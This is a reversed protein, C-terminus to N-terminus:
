KKEVFYMDVEGKNKAEIKGRHTCTFDHKVQKYTSGSINVKGVEGSSEMRSALNVADGWIDYAYKKTGVVGAVVKGTNIGIRIEFFPKGEKQRETKYKKMFDRIELAAKVVDFANNPNKTPLGGACMYADGITKIKEIKHKSIIKDFERFCYDIEGVLKAPTMTEAIKTFGKFDTFLITVKDYNQPKVSNKEKLEKATERPLINLLLAETKAKENRLAVTRKKVEKELRINKQIIRRNIFYFILIIIFIGVFIATYIFWQKRWFPTLITFSVIEDKSIEEFINKARAILEYNGPPVSSLEIFNNKNWKSWDEYNKLGTIKYQYQIDDSKLYFPAIFEFRLSNNLYAIQANSTTYISDNKDAISNLSLHIERSSIKNQEGEIKVMEDDKGVIWLNDSKDEYIKKIQPFLNLFEINVHNKVQNVSQWKNNEYTWANNKAMLYPINERTIHDINKYLISHSEKDYKFIGESQINYVSDNIMEFNVQEYIRETHALEMIKAFEGESNRKSYYAKEQSGIFLNGNKDIVLSYVPDSFNNFLKESNWENNESKLKLIGNLSAVYFRETKPDYCLDNVYENDVIKKAITDQILFLGYNTSAFIRKNLYFIEKTKEEIGSIKLFNYRNAERKQLKYLGDNTAVYIKNRIINIDNIAGFLGPYSSFRRVPLHIDCRSIGQEHTLWLGDNKDKAVTFIEDDPLGSDHNIIHVIKGYIKDIIAAGGNLTTVAFYKDSYNIGDWLINDDLFDRVQTFGSFQEFKKGDFLYIKNNSTGLIIKNRNYKSFFRIEVEDFRNGNGHKKLNLNYIKFLGKHKINIYVDNRFQFLGTFDGYDKSNFQIIKGPNNKEILNISKKNYFVVLHKTIAIKTFDGIEKEFNHISSYEYKGNEKKHLYGIENKLGTYIIQTATDIKLSLVNTPVAIKNWRIGDFTAIGYKNAFFAVNAENFIIDQIKHHAFNENVAYNDIHLHGNQGVSFITAILLFSCTIWKM